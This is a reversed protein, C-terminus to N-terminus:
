TDSKSRLRDLRECHSSRRVQHFASLHGHRHRWWFLLAQLPKLDLDVQLTFGRSLSSRTGKGRTAGAEPGAYLFTLVPMDDLFKSRFSHTVLTRLWNSPRFGWSGPVHGEQRTGGHPQQDGAKTTTTQQNWPGEIRTRRPQALRFALFGLVQKWCYM